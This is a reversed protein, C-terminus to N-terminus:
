KSSKVGPRTIWGIFLLGGTKNDHIAFFFPRDLVLSFRMSMSKSMMTVKTAAAAVTGEENVELRTKHKVDSIYMQSPSACMSSFDARSQDFADGMGLNTLTERLDLDCDGEFRPMSLSGDMTHFQGLWKEWSELNLNSQFAKISDEISTHFTPLYVVMGLRGDGYPLRAAKFHETQLYSFKGSQNMFASEVQEGGTTHFIGTKTKQPDFQSTWMGKFYVANILFLVTSPSIRDLIKPIYGQTAKEVWGNITPLTDASSFDISSTKASYFNQCISQFDPQLIIGQKVWLSNAISVQIGTMKKFANSSKQMAPNIQDAGMEPTGMTKAISKKTQGSAGNFVMGLSISMSLPSLITNVMKQPFSAQSNLYEQLLQFGLSNQFSSVKESSQMEKSM